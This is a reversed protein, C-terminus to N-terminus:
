QRKVRRGKKVKDEKGDAPAGDAPVNDEQVAPESVPTETAAVQQEGYRATVKKELVPADTSRGIKFGM